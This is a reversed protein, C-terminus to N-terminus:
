LETGQVNRNNRREYNNFDALRRTSEETEPSTKQQSSFRKQILVKFLM